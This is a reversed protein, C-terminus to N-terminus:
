KTLGVSLLSGLDNVPLLDMGAEIQTRYNQYRIEAAVTELENLSKEGKWYQEIAFKLQRKDGIRPYGLNHSKM